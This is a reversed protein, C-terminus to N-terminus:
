FYFLSWYTINILSLFLLFPVADFAAFLILLFFEILLLFKLKYLEAVM